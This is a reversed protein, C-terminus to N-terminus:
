SCSSVSLPPLPKTNCLLANCLLTNCLLCRMFGTSLLTARIDEVIISICGFPNAIIKTAAFAVALGDIGLQGVSIFQGINYDRGPLM